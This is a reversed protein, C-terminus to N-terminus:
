LIEQRFRREWRRPRRGPHGASAVIGASSFTDLRTRSPVIEGIHHSLRRHRGCWWCISGLRCRQEGLIGGLHSLEPEIGPSRIRSGTHCIKGVPAGLPHDEDHQTRPRCGITAGPVAQGALHVQQRCAHDKGTAPLPLVGSPQPMEELFDRIAGGGDVLGWWCRPHRQHVVFGGVCELFGSSDEALHLQGVGTLEPSHGAGGELHVPRLITGRPGRPRPRKGPGSTM